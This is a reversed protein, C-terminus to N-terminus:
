IEGPKYISDYVSDLYLSFNYSPLSNFDFDKIAKNIIRERFPIHITKATGNNIREILSSPLLAKLNTPCSDTIRVKYNVYVVIVPLKCKDIAYEIEYPVFDNDLRTTNGVLLLFRKSNDLRSRLTRKITEEQSEGRLQPGKEHPNIFKFTRDKMSNWGKLLNYFRIDSKTFDTNGDAAFAVYTGIRYAM